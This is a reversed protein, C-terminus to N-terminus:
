FFDKKYRLYKFILKTNNILKGKITIIKKIRNDNIIAKVFININKEEAITTVPQKEESLIKIKKYWAKYIKNKPDIMLAFLLNKKFYDHGPYIKTKQPLKIIKNISNFLEDINGSNDKVNGIGASFLTDGSFLINNKKFHFCIHNATHGPTTIICCTATVFKITINQSIKRDIKTNQIYNFKAYIPIDFKKKINLAASTHDEHEHTLLIAEVTLNLKKINKIYTNTFSPDIILCTKSKTNYIFYNYNRLKNKLYWRKVKIM